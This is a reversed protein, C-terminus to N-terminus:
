KEVKFQICKSLLRIFLLKYGQHPGTTRQPEEAAEGRPRPGKERRQKMRRGRCATCEQHSRRLARERKQGRDRLRMEEARGEEPTRKGTRDPGQSM